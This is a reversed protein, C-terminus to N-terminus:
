KVLILVADRIKTPANTKNCIAQNTKEKKKKFSTNRSRSFYLINVASASIKSKQEEGKM